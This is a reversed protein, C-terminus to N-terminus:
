WSPPARWPWSHAPLRHRPQRPPLPRRRHDGGVLRAPAAARRRLRCRVRGAGERAGRPRRVPDPKGAEGAARAASGPRHLQAARGTDPGAAADRWGAAAPASLRLRHRRACPPGAPRVARGPQARRADDAPRQAPVPLSEGAAAPPRPVARNGPPQPGRDAGPEDAAVRARRRRRPPHQRQGLRDLKAGGRPVGTGRLSRRATRRRDGPHPVPRARRDPAPRDHGRRRHPWARFGGAAAPRRCGPPGIRGDASGIRGARVGGHQAPM